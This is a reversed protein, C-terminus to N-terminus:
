HWHVRKTFKNFLFNGLALAFGSVIGVLMADRLSIAQVTIKDKVTPAIPAAQTAAPDLGLTLSLM